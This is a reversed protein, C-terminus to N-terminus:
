DGLLHMLAVLLNVQLGYKRAARNEDLTLISCSHLLIFFCLYIPFWNRFKNEQILRQLARLVSRKLPQLIRTTTILEVQASMMPPISNTGYTNCKEDLFQPEMGLTEKGCIRESQSEMRIAVWLQFVEQLM